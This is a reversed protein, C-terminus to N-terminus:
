AASDKDLAVYVVPEYTLRSGSTQYEPPVSTHAALNNFADSVHTVRRWSRSFKSGTFAISRHKVASTVPVAGVVVKIAKCLFVPRGMIRTSLVLSVMQFIYCIWMSIDINTLKVSKTEASLPFLSTLFSVYSYMQKYSWQKGLLFRNKIQNVQNCFNWFLNLPTYTAIIATSHTYIIFIVNYGYLKLQKIRLKYRYLFFHTEQILFILFYEMCNVQM